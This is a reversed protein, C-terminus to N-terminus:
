SVPEFVILATIDSDDSAILHLQLWQDQSSGTIAVSSFELSPRQNEVVFSESHTTQTGNIDTAMVSPSFKEAGSLTVAFECQNGQAVSRQANALALSQGNVVVEALLPCQEIAIRYDVEQLSETIVQNARIDIQGIALAPASFLSAGLFAVPLVAKTFDM